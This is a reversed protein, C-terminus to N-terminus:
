CTACCWEAACGTTTPPEDDNMAADGLQETIINTSFLKLSRILSKSGAAAFCWKMIRNEAQSSTSEDDDDDGFVGVGRSASDSRIMSILWDNCDAKGEM